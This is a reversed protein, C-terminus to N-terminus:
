EHREGFCYSNWDTMLKMRKDFFDGRFYRGEVGPITHALCAEIVETQADHMEAAWTKFSSRLGHIVWHEEVGLRARMQRVKVDLVTDSFALAKNSPSPFLASSDPSLEKLQDLCAIMQDTVAIRHEERMKMRELPITWQRSQLDIEKWQALRIETKRCATLCILQICLSAKSHDARLLAMLAPIHKWHLSPQKSAPKTKSLLFELNGKFVAPNPYEAYKRAISAGMIKEIRQRVRSATENKTKWIDKLCDYIDNPTIENVPMEGLIPYAYTRLTNRWQQRHKPNSFSEVNDDLWDEAVERFTPSGSTQKVKNPHIGDAVLANWEAFRLRDKQLNGSPKVNTDYSVKKTRVRYRWSKRGKEDIIFTTNPQDLQKLPKSGNYQSVTIQRPTAM